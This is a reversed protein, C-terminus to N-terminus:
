AAEPAQVGEGARDANLLLGCMTLTVVLSSGGSSFFPLPIGTTPLLGTAMAMNVAAQAAIAFTIGFALYYRFTDGNRAHRLATAFGRWAFVAFLGLVLLAGIFGMEEGVVAFVFDSQAEPLGGLKSVSQGLGSGWLGGGMFARQSALVQYGAGSPDTLPNLFTVIRRVRHEQSFLLLVAVPVAVTVFMALRVVSVGAIFFVALGLLLLIGASSYDNQFYTLVVFLLLVILPPLLANTADDMRDKKKDFISALYLVLALKV